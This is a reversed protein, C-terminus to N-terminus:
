RLGVASKSSVMSLISADALRKSRPRDLNILHSARPARRLLRRLGVQLRSKVQAHCGSLM